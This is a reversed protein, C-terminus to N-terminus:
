EYRRKQFKVCLRHMKDYAEFDPTADATADLYGQFYATMSDSGGNRHYRNAMKYLRAFKKKLNM